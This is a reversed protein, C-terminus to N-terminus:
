AASNTFRWNVGHDQCGGYIMRATRDWFFGHGPATGTSGAGPPESHCCISGAATTQQCAAWRIFSSDTGICPGALWSAANVIEFYDQAGKKHGVVFACDFQGILNTAHDLALMHRHFLAYGHDLLNQTGTSNM